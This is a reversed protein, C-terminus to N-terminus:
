SFLTDRYIDYIPHPLQPTDVSLPFGEPQWLLPPHLEPPHLRKFTNLQSASIGNLSKPFGYLM